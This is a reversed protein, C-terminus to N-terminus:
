YLGKADGCPDLEINKIGLDQLSRLGALFFFLSICKHTEPANETM